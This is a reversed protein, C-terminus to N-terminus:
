DWWETIHQGIYTFAREYDDYIIAYDLLKLAIRITIFRSDNEPCGAVTDGNYYYESMAILLDRLATTLYIYDWGDWKKVSKIFEKRKRRVWKEYRRWAQAGTNHKQKYVVKEEM